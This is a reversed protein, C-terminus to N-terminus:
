SECRRMCIEILWDTGCKSSSTMGFDVLLTRVNEKFVSGEYMVPWMTGGVCHEDLGIM